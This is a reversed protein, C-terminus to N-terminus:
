QLTSRAQDGASLIVDLSVSAHGAAYEMRTLKVVQALPVFELIKVQSNGGQLVLFDDHVELLLREENNNIVVTHGCCRRVLEQFRM